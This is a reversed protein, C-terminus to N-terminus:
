ITGGSSSFNGPTIATGDALFFIQRPGDSSYPEVVNSSNFPDPYPGSPYGQGIPQFAPTAAVSFAGASSSHGPTAGATAVALSDGFTDLHLFRGSAGTNQFIVLRDGADDTGVAEVPDETGTQSDLSADLVTTGTSNLVFLDYDNASGGLPDSWFLFV